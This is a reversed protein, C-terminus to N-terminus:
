APVETLPTSVTTTDDVHYVKIITGRCRERGQCNKFTGTPYDLEAASIDPYETGDVAICDSCTNTDLIESSFLQGPENDRRYVLARGANISQQVAGGLVDKAYSNSLGLLHQRVEEAVQDPGISGGTLRIAQRSASTSFEQRLMADVAEARNGISKALDSTDQHPVEVGQARAEQVAQGAALAAVSLLRDSIASSNSASSALSALKSLDGNAAVIADRLEDAQFSRVMRIEQMLLELASDYQSDMQSFDVAANVEHTYPQRRLPRAPLLLPSTPQAAQLGDVEAKRATTGQGATRGRRGARSVERDDGTLAAKLKPDQVQLGPEKAGPTGPAAGPTTQLAEQFGALPDQAGADFWLLPAFEEDPGENWEVDDEIVHENFTDCFWKAVTYQAVRAIDRFESGLARSGSNTQGLMNVQQFFARAMEENQQKLYAVAGDGGAALAFKLQAGHPLAAGAGEGVRFARALADLERIQDGSAGEPAQVYPIGGAREINIAGVRLVRDKVVSNRYISRLMSRGTWNSGERDWVYWVMRDIPIAPDNPRATLQRINKLNGDDAVNIEFITKPPIIALKRLHWKMDELIEGVQEFPMHGYGPARLADEIHKDFSFRRQGRRRNFEDEQGPELKGIPLNYDTSIRDVVEPKAGNEKLYFRFSRIPLMLGYYLSYAQADNLIAHYAEVSNPWMLEPVKEFDDGAIFSSWGIIGALGNSTSLQSTPGEATGTQM